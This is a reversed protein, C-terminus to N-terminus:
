RQVLFDTFYIDRVGLEPVRDNLTAILDQKLKQKGDPTLLEESHRTALVSIIADRISAIPVGTQSGEKALNPVKDVGLDISVRLYTIQAQDALNVIFSDLHIVGVPLANPNDSADSAQVRTDHIYWAAGVGALVLLVIAVGLLLPLKSAKTEAEPRGSEYAMASRRSAIRSGFLM